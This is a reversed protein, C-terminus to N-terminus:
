ADVVMAGCNPCSEQTAINTRILANIGDSTIVPKCDYEKVDEDNFNRKCLICKKM